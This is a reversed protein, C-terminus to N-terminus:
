SAFLFITDQKTRSLTAKDTQPSGNLPNQCVNNTYFLSMGEFNNIAKESPGM